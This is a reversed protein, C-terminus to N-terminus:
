LYRGAENANLVSSADINSLNEFQSDGIRINFGSGYQQVIVRIGDPTFLVYDLCDLVNTAYPSFNIPRHEKM